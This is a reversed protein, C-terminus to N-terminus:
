QTTSKCGIALGLFIVGRDDSFAATKCWTSKDSGVSPRQLSIQYHGGDPTTTVTLEYPKPNELDIPARYTGGERQQLFSLIEDRPAFRGNKQQYAYESTNLVRLANVLEESSIETQGRVIAPVAFGTALAVLSGALVLCIAKTKM